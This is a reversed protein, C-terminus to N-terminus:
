IGEERGAEETDPVQERIYHHPGEPNCNMWIKAGAVSCRGIAQDVFSQPFLAAEDLYQEPATLGQLADQAAEPTQVTCIIINSGIEIRADTGSRIYTYSWGWAELIRLIPRVFMRRSHGWQREPM